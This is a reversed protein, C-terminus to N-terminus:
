RPPARGRRRGRAPGCRPVTRDPRQRRPQRRASRPPTLTSPVAPLTAQDESSRREHRTSRIHAAFQTIEEAAPLGGGHETLGPNQPSVAAAPPAMAAPALTATWIMLFLVAVVVPRLGDALRGRTRLPEMLQRIGLPM